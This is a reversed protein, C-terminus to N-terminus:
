KIAVFNPKATEVPVTKNNKAEFNDGVGVCFLNRSSNCM